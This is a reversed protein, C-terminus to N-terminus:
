EPKGMDGPGPSEPQVEPRQGQSPPIDSVPRTAPDTAAPEVQDTKHEVGVIRFYNVKFGSEEEKPPGPAPGNKLDGSVADIHFDGDAIKKTPWHDIASKLNRLSKIMPPTCGASEAKQLYLEMIDSAFQDQARIIFVPESEPVIGNFDVFREKWDPRMTNLIAMDSATKNQDNM